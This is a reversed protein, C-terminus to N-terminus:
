GRVLIKNKNQQIIVIEDLFEDTDFNPIQFSDAMNYIADEPVYGRTGARLNNQELATDVSANIVIAVIKVNKLASAGLANILKRRSGPNLHTADVIVNDSNELGFDIDAIFRSYVEKEKSFYPENEAVLSFRIADRSIVATHGCFKPLNNKIFTSKGVGPIGCMMYLTKM